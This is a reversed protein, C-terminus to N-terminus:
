VRTLIWQYESAISAEIGLAQMEAPLVDFTYTEIELHETGCERVARFFAPTLEASTSRIVDTASFYLPIHFHIRWEGELRGTAKHRALAEPLDPCSVVAGAASRVKVQHLYVPDCFGKLASLMGANSTGANCTVVPAASLQIKSLLIEKARLTYLSEALEEFQIALHCTDLCIGLHRRIVGESAGGLLYDEFFSVVDGTTELYCDPEPELGLHIRKGTKDLIGALHQAVTTLNEAMQRKDAGTRIWAKYSCPVTSISGAVGEPLLEALITALRKTYAVREPTRWDPQYVQEKVRTDHFAGYPFGNVTFVYLDHDSLFRKFAQLTEPASLSLSAANGLRLGLGFPKDPSIRRRIGLAKTRIAAFNEEWSEGPHVNLCYTLHTSPHGPLRM